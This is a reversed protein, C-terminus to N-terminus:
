KEDALEELAQEFLESTEKNEFRIFKNFELVSYILIGFLILMMGVIFLLTTNDIEGTLILIVLILISTGAEIVPEWTGSTFRNILRTQFKQGVFLKDALEKKKGSLMKRAAWKTIKFNVLNYLLKVTSLIFLFIASGFLVEPISDFSIM